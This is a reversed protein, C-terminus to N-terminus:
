KEMCCKVYEVHLVLILQTFLLSLRLSKVKETNPKRFWFKVNIFIKHQHKWLHFNSLQQKVTFRSKTILDFM